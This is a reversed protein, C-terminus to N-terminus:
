SIARVTVGLMAGWLQHQFNLIPRCTPRPYLESAVYLHHQFTMIPQQPRPYLESAGRLHHQFTLIPRQPRPYLESAGWFIPHHSAMMEDCAFTSGLAARVPICPCRMWDSAVTCSCNLPERGLKPELLHLILRYSYRQACGALSKKTHRKHKHWVWQRLMYRHHMTATCKASDFRRGGVARGEKDLLRSCHLPTPSSSSRPRHLRGEVYTCECPPVCGAGSGEVQWCTHIHEQWGWVRRECVAM